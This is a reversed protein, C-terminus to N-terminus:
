GVCRAQGTGWASCIRLYAVADKGTIPLFDARGSLSVAKLSRGEETLAHSAVRLALAGTGSGVLLSDVLSRKRALKFKYISRRPRHCM